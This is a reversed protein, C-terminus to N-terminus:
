EDAEVSPEVQIGGLFQEVQGEYDDEQQEQSEWAAKSWIEIRDYCGALVLERQIGAKGRLREPLLIRGQRDLPLREAGSYWRRQFRRLQTSGRPLKEMDSSIRGWESVTYLYLCGEPAHTAIFGEGDESPRVEDRLKAPVIVRGKDDLSHEFQGM